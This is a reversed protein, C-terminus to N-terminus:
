HRTCKHIRHTYHAYCWRCMPRGAWWYVRQTLPYPRNGHLHRNSCFTVRQGRRPRAHRGNLLAAAMLDVIFGM